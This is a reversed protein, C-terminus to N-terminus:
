EGTDDLSTTGCLSPEGLKTVEVESSYMDSEGAQHKAMAEDESEADVWFVQTGSANVVDHSILFRKLM